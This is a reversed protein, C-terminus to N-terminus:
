IDADCAKEAAAGHRTVAGNRAPGLRQAYNWLPDICFSRTARSACGDAILAVKRGRGQRYLAAATALMERMGPGGQPGAYRIVLVEGERYKKNKVTEFRAEEGDFRALGTFKLDAVGAVKVVAGAPALNGKLGVVGRTASLPQDAPRVVSQDKNWKAQRLSEAVTRGTMCGHDLLTRLVLPVGCGEFVDKAVYRGASKLNAIYPVRDRGGTMHRRPLQAKPTLKADM